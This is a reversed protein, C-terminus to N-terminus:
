PHIVRPHPRQPVAGTSPKQGRHGDLDLTSLMATGTGKSVRLSPLGIGSGCVTASSGRQSTSGDQSPNSSKGVNATGYAPLLVVCERPCCTIPMKVSIKLQHPPFVHDLRM